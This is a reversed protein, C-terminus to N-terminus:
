GLRGALNILGARIRGLGSREQGEALWLLPRRRRQAAALLTAALDRWQRWCQLHHQEMLWDLQPVTREIGDRLQEDIAKRLVELDNLEALLDRGRRLQQRWRRRASAGALPLNDLRDGHDELCTGLDRLGALEERREAVWWGRHLLLPAPDAEWELLWAQLPENGLATYRPDRLWGQLRALQELHGGSRLAEGLHDHALQRERKLQRLVPKLRRVEREPAQPLFAADLRERLRDLDRVMALRRQTKALRKANVDEPLDLAPEFQLLSHLLQRLHDDMQRLPEPDQNELVAAQLEVLGRCHQAILGHAHDGNLIPMAAAAM